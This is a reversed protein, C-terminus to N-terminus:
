WGASAAGMKAGLGCRPAQDVAEDSDRGGMCGPSLAPFPSHVPSVPAEQARPGPRTGTWCLLTHLLSRVVMLVLCLPPSLRVQAPPAESRPLLPNGVQSGSAQPSAEPPAAM